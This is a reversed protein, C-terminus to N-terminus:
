RAGTAPLGDYDRNLEERLAHLIGDAIVPDLTGRRGTYSTATEAVKEAHRLRELLLDMGAQAVLADWMERTLLVNVGPKFRHEITTVRQRLLKADTTM